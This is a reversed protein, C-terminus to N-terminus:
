NSKSSDLVKMIDELSMPYNIRAQDPGVGFRVRQQCEVPDPRDTTYDAQEAERTAKHVLEWARELRINSNAPLCEENSDGADVACENEESSSSSSDVLDDRVVGAWRALGGDYSTIRTGDDGVRIPPTEVYSSQFWVGTVLPVAARSQDSKGQRVIERLALTRVAADTEPAQLDIMATDPTISLFRPEGNLIHLFQRTDVAFIHYINAHERCGTPLVVANPVTPHQPEPQYERCDPDKIDLYAKYGRVLAKGIFIAPIMENEATYDLRDRLPFGDQLTGSVGVILFEAKALSLSAHFNLLALPVLLKVSVSVRM